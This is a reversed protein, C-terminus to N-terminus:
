DGYRGFKKSGIWIDKLTLGVVFQTYNERIQGAAKKGKIGVELGSYMSLNRAISLGGGFSVSYDWLKQNQIRIYSNEAHLGFGLFSKEWAPNRPDKISYEMGVSGKYTPYTYSNQYAVKQYNWRSLGGEVSLTLGNKSTASYALGATLPLDFSRDAQVEKSITTTNEIYETKLEGKLDTSVTTSLGIVHQWKKGALSHYQLGAQFNAGYYFDTVTRTIDIYPSYYRTNQQVSGFLYSATIGASLRSSIMRGMSFYVQNIGGTGEVAKDYYTNADLAVRNQSLRYNVSSYPQLGFAIADKENLKFAMSIRRLIFDKTPSTLTDETPIAFKSVRGRMMIDWHMTKLPLATLSAPNSANYAWPERRSIAASGSIFYRGANKSDMDGIGLISYPSSVNQAGITIFPFLGLLLMYAKPSLLQM